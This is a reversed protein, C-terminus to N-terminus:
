AATMGHQQKLSAVGPSALFRLLARAADVHASSTSIGGAFVTLSQIADPLPGLVAIGQLNMLESLQQFGLAVSGDAVLAGVPIGPPPM